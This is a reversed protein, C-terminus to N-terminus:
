NKIKKQNEKFSKLDYIIITNTKEIVEYYLNYGINKLIIKYHNEKIRKGIYANREITEKAIKIEKTIRIGFNYNGFQSLCYYDIADIKKIIYNDIKVKFSM